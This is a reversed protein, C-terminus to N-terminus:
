VGRVPYKRRAPVFARVDRTFVDINDDDSWFVLRNYGATRDLRGELLALVWRTGDGHARTRQFPLESITIRHYNEVSDQSTWSYTEAHENEIGENWPVGRRVRAHALAHYPRYKDSDMVFQRRQEALEANTPYHSPQDQSGDNRYDKDTYREDGTLESM